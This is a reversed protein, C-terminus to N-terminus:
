GAWEVMFEELKKKSVSDLIDGWSGARRATREFRRVALWM